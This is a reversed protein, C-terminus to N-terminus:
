YPTIIVKCLIKVMQLVLQSQHCRVIQVLVVGLDNDVDVVHIVVGRNEIPGGVLGLYGLLVVSIEGFSDQLNILQALLSNKYSNGLNNQGIVTGYLSLKNKPVKGM